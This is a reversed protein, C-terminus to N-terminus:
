ETSINGKTPSEYSIIDDAKLWGPSGTAFKAQARRAFTRASEVDGAILTGEATALEAEAVKGEQQYAMALHRYGIAALPEDALGARLDAIATGADGAALEAAGLMIRILGAKPALAVAKRLPAVAASAKGAELLAQGKLEYFYPYTPSRAILADIARVADRTSGTRYAVIARAYQAPLSDDSRPYRRAVSTPSQTFGSLKARMMDHRLQLDASDTADWYPSERAATELQEIRNRAMPHTQAYPDAYQASVLEQDAFREFTTVMGKASQHTAKLYTLAARDAVYEQARKYSLLSRVTVSSGMTTAATGMQAGATSKAAAGAAMGALGLLGVVAGIAQARAIENRLKELHGGALHGTEHAIVGIVENPTKAQLLTGTFIVMRHGSAVFANFDPNDVIVIEADRSGVGAANFIPEAYDRLLTEIEADRIINLRSQASAAPPAFAICGALLFPLARARRSAFISSTVTSIRNEL